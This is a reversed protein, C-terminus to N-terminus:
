SKVEVFNYGEIYAKSNQSQEGEYYAYSGFSFDIGYKADTIAMLAIDDNITELGTKSVASTRILTNAVANKLRYSGSVGAVTPLLSFHSIDEYSDGKEGDFWAIVGSDLVGEVSTNAMNQVALDTENTSQTDLTENASQTEETVQSEQTVDENSTSQTNESTSEQTNETTNVQTSNQNFGPVLPLPAAISVTLVMAMCVIITLIKKM